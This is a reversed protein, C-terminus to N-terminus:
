KAPRSGTGLAASLGPWTDSLSRHLEQAAALGACAATATHPGFRVQHRVGLQACAPTGNAHCSARTLPVHRCAPCPHRFAAARPARSSAPKRINPALGKTAAGLGGWGARGQSGGWHLGGEECQNTRGATLWADAHLGTRQLATCARRARRARAWGVLLPGAQGSRRAGACPACGCKKTGRGGAERESAGNGMMASFSGFCGGGARRARASFAMGSM